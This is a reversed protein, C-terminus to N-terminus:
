NMQPRRFRGQHDHAYVTDHGKDTIRQGNNTTRGPLTHSLFVRYLSSNGYKRIVKCYTISLQKAKELFSRRESKVM